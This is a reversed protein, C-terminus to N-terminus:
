TKYLQKPHIKSVELRQFQRGIAYYWGKMDAKFPLWSDINHFVHKAIYIYNTIIHTADLLNSTYM